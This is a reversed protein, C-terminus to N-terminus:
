EVIIGNSIENNRRIFDGGRIRTVLLAHFTFRERIALISNAGIRAFSTRGEVLSDYSFSNACPLRM